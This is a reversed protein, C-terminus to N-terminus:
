RINRNQVPVRSNHSVIPDPSISLSNIKLLDSSPGCNSWSFDAAAFAAFAAVLILAARM